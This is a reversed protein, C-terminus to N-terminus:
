RLYVAVHWFQRQTTPCLLNYAQQFFLPSPSACLFWLCRDGLYRLVINVFLCPSDLHRIIVSTTPAVSAACIHQVNRVYMSWMVPVIYWRWLQMKCFATSATAWRTLVRWFVYPQLCVSAGVKTKADTTPLGACTLFNEIVEVLKFDSKWTNPFWRM